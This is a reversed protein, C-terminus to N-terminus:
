RSAIAALEERALGVLRWYPPPYGREAQFAAARRGLRAAVEAHVTGYWRNRLAATASMGEPVPGVRGTAELVVSLAKAARAVPLLARAHELRAGREAAELMAETVANDHHDKRLAEPDRWEAVVRLQPDYELDAPELTEFHRVGFGALWRRLGESSVHSLGMWLRVGHRAYADAAVESCFLKGPDARDMAFDYPVHGARARELASAAARHPLLPDRVIAPLDARPRLVLVRLKADALYDEVSSIVVGREIHAEVISVRRTREDVHVLAVHSFNGPFDNGRAILASTPAGGRSLLVDGSRVEVGLVSAAPTRSPEDVGRTLVAAAAAPPEQLLLEEVAARGGYLLRYLAERARRDDMSWRESQRKVADRLAAARGVYGAVEAACAGVRPAAEFVRRELDALIPADPGVPEADLRALGADLAALGAEVERRVAGCGAARAAAYDAELREWFADQNWAFPRAAGGPPPAAPLPPEPEPLLLVLYVVALGALVWAAGRAVRRAM